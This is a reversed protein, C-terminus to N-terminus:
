GLDSAGIGEHPVRGHRPTPYDDHRRRSGPTSKRSHENPANPGDDREGEDHRPDRERQQVDFASRRAVTWRVDEEPNQLERDKYEDHGFEDPQRTSM